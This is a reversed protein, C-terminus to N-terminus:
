LEFSLRINKRSVSRQLHAGADFRDALMALHDLAPSDDPDDALAVGFVFLPLPLAHGADGAYVERAVLFNLVSERVDVADTRAVRLLNERLRAHTRLAPARMPPVRFDRAEARARDLIAGYDIDNRPIEAV